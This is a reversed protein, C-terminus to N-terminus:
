VRLVTPPSSAPIPALPSAVDHVAVRTAVVCGAPTSSLSRIRDTIVITGVALATGVCLAAIVVNIETDNGDILTQDWSDFMEVIPEGFAIAVIAAILLRRAVSGSHLM